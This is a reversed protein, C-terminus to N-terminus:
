GTGAIAVSYSQFCSVLADRTAPDDAAAEDIRQFLVLLGEPDGSGVSVDYPAVCAQLDSLAAALEIGSPATAAIWTAEVDDLYEGTCQDIGSDFREELESETEGPGPLGSDAELASVRGDLPVFRAEFGLDELCTVTAFRARELEAFTVEGDDLIEREFASLDELVVTPQMPEQTSCAAVGSALAVVAAAVVTRGARRISISM